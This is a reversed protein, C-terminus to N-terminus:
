IRHGSVEYSRSERENYWKDFDSKWDGFFSFRCNEGPSKNKIFNTHKWLVFVEKNLAGAAHYMGTDNSVLFDSHEIAGLSKRIDDLILTSVPAWNKMRCIFSEYDSQSGIFVVRRKSSVKELIYKYIDDGPEKESFWSNKVGGRIIVCYKKNLEFPKECIDVYTHPINDIEIGFHKTVSQHIFKWDEIDENVFASTFLVDRQKAQKRNIIKIFPCDLFM